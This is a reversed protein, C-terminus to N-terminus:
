KGEEAPLFDANDLKFYKRCTRAFCPHHAGNSLNHFEDRDLPLGKECSECEVKCVYIGAERRGRAEGIADAANLASEAVGICHESPVFTAHCDKFLQKAKKRYEAM